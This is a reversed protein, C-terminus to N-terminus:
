FTLVAEAKPSSDSCVLVDEEGISPVDIEVVAFDEPKSYQLAKMTKPVGGNAKSDATPGM